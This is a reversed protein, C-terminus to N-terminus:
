KRMWTINSPEILSYTCLWDSLLSNMVFTRVSRVRKVVSRWFITNEAILVNLSFSEIRPHLLNLLSLSLLLFFCISIPDPWVYCKTQVNSYKSNAQHLQHWYEAESYICLSICIRLWVFIGNEYRINWCNTMIPLKKRKKEERTSPLLPHKRFSVSFTVCM